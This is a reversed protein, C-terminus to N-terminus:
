VRIVALAGAEANSSPQDGRSLRAIASLFTGSAGDGATAALKLYRKKGLLNLQFVVVDNDDDASPLTVSNGDIDVADTGVVTGAVDTFSGGSTDAEQVKLGAMAIDTAGIQMVIEAYDYGETDIEIATAAANDLIAAPAIAAAYKARQAEIM